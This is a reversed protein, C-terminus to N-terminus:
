CLVVPPPSLPIIQHLWQLSAPGVIKIHVQQTQLTSMQRWLGSSFGNIASHSKTINRSSEYRLNYDPLSHSDKAQM